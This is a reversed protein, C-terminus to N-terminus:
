FTLSNDIEGIRRRNIYVALGVVAYLGGAIPFAFFWSESGKEYVTELNNELYYVDIQRGVYFDTHYTNLRTTIMEGNVMLEVYTIHEIPHESDGTERKEIETIYATTYIWDEKRNNFCIGAVAGLIGIFLGVAIFIIGTIAGVKHTTRM